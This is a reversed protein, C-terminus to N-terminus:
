VSLKINMKVKKGYKIFLIEILVSWLIIGCISGPIFANGSNLGNFKAYLFYPFAIIQFLVGATKYIMKYGLDSEEYAVILFLLAFFAVAILVTIGLLRWYNIQLHYKQIM